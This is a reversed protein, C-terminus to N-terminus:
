GGCSISDPAVDGAPPLVFTHDEELMVKLVSAGNGQSDAYWMSAISGNPLVCPTNDNKFETGILEPTSAGSGLRWVQTEGRDASFVLSGDPAYAAHTVM